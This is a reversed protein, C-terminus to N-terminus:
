GTAGTFTTHLEATLTRREAYKCFEDMYQQATHTPLRQELIQITMDYSNTLTTFINIKM